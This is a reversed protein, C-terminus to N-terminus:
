GSSGWKRKCKGSGDLNESQWDCVICDGKLNLKAPPNCEKPRARAAFNVPEDSPADDPNTEEKQAIVCDISSLLLVLFILIHVGIRKKILLM